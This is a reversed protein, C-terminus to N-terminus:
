AISVSFRIPSSAGYRVDFFPDPLIPDLHTVLELVESWDMADPSDAATELKEQRAEQNYGCFACSRVFLKQSRERKM